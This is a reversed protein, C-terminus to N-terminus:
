QPPTRHRHHELFRQDKHLSVIDSGLVDSPHRYHSHQSAGSVVVEQDWTMSVTTVTEMAVSCKIHPSHAGPVSTSPTPHHPPQKDREGDPRFLLKGETDLGSGCYAVLQRGTTIWRIM